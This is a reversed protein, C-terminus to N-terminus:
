AMKKNFLRIAIFSFILAIGALILVSPYIEALHFNRWFIDTLGKMAWYNLTFKGIARIYNPMLFTPIMSGGLASM